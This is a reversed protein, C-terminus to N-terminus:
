RALLSKIYDEAGEDMEKAYKMYLEANEDDGLKRYAASSYCCIIYFISVFKNLRSCHM